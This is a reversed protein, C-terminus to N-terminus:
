RKTRAEDTRRRYSQSGGLAPWDAARLHGCSFDVRAAVFGAECTAHMQRTPRIQVVALVLVQWRSWLM